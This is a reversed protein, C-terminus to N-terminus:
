REKEQLEDLWAELNALMRDTPEARIQRTKKVYSDFIGELEINLFDNDRYFSFVPGGSMGRLEEPQFGEIDSYPLLQGYFAADDGWREEHFSIESWQKRMIPLCILESSFQVMEKRSSVSTYGVSSAEWPFGALVFGEPEIIPESRKGIRMILPKLNKNHRFNESELISLLIAGYDAGNPLGSYYDISRRQFPLTEAGRVDWRDIWRLDNITGQKYQEIIAEVVHGASVWLLRKNVEMLIGTSPLRYINGNEKYSMYLQVFYKVLETSFYRSASSKVWWHDDFFSSAM